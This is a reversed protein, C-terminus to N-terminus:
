DLNQLPRDSVYLALFDDAAFNSSDFAYIGIKALGMQIKKISFANGHDRAQCIVDINIHSEHNDIILLVSAEKSPKTHKIFHDFAKTPNEGTMRGSKFAFGLSSDQLMIKKFRQLTFIFVPLVTSGTASVFLLMTVLQEQEASTAQAVQKIGKRAIFKPTNAVTSLGTENANYVQEPTFAYRVSMNKKTVEKVASKFEVKTKRIIKSKEAKKEM